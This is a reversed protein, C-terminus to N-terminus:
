SVALSLKPMLRRWKRLGVGPESHFCSVSLKELRANERNQNGYIETNGPTDLVLHYLPVAIKDDVVRCDLQESIAM